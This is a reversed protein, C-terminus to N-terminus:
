PAGGDRHAKVGGPRRDYRLPEHCGATCGGGNPTVVFGMPMAWSSGEFNVTRAILRPSDGAHVAHCAACGRSKEGAHLHAQHLNRDGDRFGTSGGPEALAPDHCAFCLLYNKMDYPESLVQPNVSKLLRSHSGGHVSHCASCDGSRVAGHVVAAHSLEDGLAAVRRGDSATVPKDHCSLCVAAQEARLMSPHAASHPDHCTVCQEGRLVPEHSVGAAGVTRGVDQHCVVCVERAPARLLGRHDSGHASHCAGCGGAIERHPHSGSSVTAVAQAHCMRCHEEGAGGLLLKSNAGGHADHCADCRGDAYPKHPHTWDEGPHCRVCTEEMTGAILLGRVASAHPDHCALCSDGSMAKHQFVGHAATDHCATCIAEAGATLPYVHGGADPKHCVGCEGQGVPAHRVALGAFSAHCEATV